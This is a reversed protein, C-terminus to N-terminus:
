PHCASNDAPGSGDYPAILITTSTSREGGVDQWLQATDCMTAPLDVVWHGYGSRDEIVVGLGTKDDFLTVIAGAVCTGGVRWVGDVATAAVSSLEPPPLPLTPSLCSVATSALASALVLVSLFSRARM